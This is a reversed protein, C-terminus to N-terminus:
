SATGFKKWLIRQYCGLRISSEQSQRPVITKGCDCRSPPRAKTNRRVTGDWILKISISKLYLWIRWIRPCSTIGITFGGERCLLARAKLSDPKTIIVIELPIKSYLTGVVAAVNEPLTSM